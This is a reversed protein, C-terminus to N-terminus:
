PTSTTPRWSISNNPLCSHVIPLLKTNDPIPNCFAATLIIACSHCRQVCTHGSFEGEYMQSYRGFLCWRFLSTQKFATCSGTFYRMKKGPKEYKERAHINEINEPLIGRLKGTQLHKTVVKISDWQCCFCLAWRSPSYLQNSDNFVLPSVLALIEQELVRRNDSRTVSRTPTNTEWGDGCVYVCWMM